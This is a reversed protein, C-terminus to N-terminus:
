RSVRFAVRRSTLDATTLRVSVEAGLVLPQDDGVQAEIAPEQIVVTGRTEDRPEVATIVGAFVEGVRDHLLGTEVLDVIAREYANARRTSSRMTEPLEALKALVWEPVPEGACIAVAIEGAYRDVLRRLPATVHAYPAALAAHTAGDPAGDTFAVYGSGRLLRTSATIMAAEAPVGPDLDRIFPAYGVEAPWEIGLGRATHRLRAIDQEQPEPLVRLIGVGAQLMLAAASFGTLLSIQANWGEVPLPRRFSLEWRDDSVRVEQEPRPLSVGGRARELGERLRGVEALLGVVEGAVGADLDAQASIYDLKARSRVLARAVRVGTGLPLEADAEWALRGLADLSMEWLLAPRTQDPLLSAAGESLVQPHLAIKADAGYLTEGRRHAEADIVGEPEVFAGVDAIAYRVLYGDGTRSIHVAQDLDRSSAPDLTVFAIDTCDAAPLRPAAAARAAAAEVDPPFAAQVGLEAAIASIGEAIRAASHNSEARM